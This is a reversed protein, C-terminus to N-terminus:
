NQWFVFGSGIEALINENYLLMNCTAYELKNGRKVDVWLYFDCDVGLLTREYLEEYRIFKKM